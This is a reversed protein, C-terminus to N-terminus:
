ACGSCDFMSRNHLRNSTYGPMLLCSHLEVFCLSSLNVRLSLNNENIVIRFNLASRALGLDVIIHKNDTDTGFISSEADRTNSFVRAEQLFNAISLSDALLNHVAHLSSSELILGWFLNLSQKVHNDDTTSRSTNFESTLELVEEVLIDLLPNWLDTVLELDSQDLSEGVNKGHKGFLQDLVGLRGELLLLDGDHGLGGDLLNGLCSDLSLSSSRISLLLHLDHWVTKKDPSGSVGDSRDNSVQHCRDGRLLIRSSTQGDALVEYDLTGLVDPGSTVARNGSISWSGLDCRLFTSKRARRKLVM